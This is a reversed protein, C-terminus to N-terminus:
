GIRVKRHEYIEHSEIRFKSLFECIRSMTPLLLEGDPGSYTITDWSQMFVRSKDCRFRRDLIIEEATSGDFEATRFEIIM